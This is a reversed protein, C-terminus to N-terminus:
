YDSNLRMKIIDMKKYCADYIEDKELNLLEGLYFLNSLISKVLLVDKNEMMSSADKYIKNIVLFINDTDIHGLINNLDSKFYTIFSLCMTISDALEELVYEKKPSKVSWYKFCKTENIFESIEIILAIVNKEYYYLDNSYRENFIVDLEKNIKYINDLDM